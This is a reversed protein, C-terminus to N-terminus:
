MYMCNKHMQVKSFSFRYCIHKVQVEDCQSASCKMTNCMVIVDYKEWQVMGVINGLTHASGVYSRMQAQEFLNTDLSCSWLGRQLVDTGSPSPNCTQSTSNQLTATHTINLPLLLLFVGQSLFIFKPLFWVRPPDVLPMSSWPCLHHTIEAPHTAGDEKQNKDM